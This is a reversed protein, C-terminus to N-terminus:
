VLTKVEEIPGVDTHTRALSDCRRTPFHFWRFLPLLSALELAFSRALLVRLRRTEGILYGHGGRRKSGDESVDQGSGNPAPTSKSEM